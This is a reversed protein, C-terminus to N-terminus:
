QADREGKVTLVIKGSSLRTAIVDFQRQVEATEQKKVSIQWIKGNLEEILEARPTV